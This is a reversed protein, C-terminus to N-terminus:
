FRASLTLRALLPAGPSLNSDNHASFWYEEDALNEINLQVDLQDTLNYFLAADVRTFSPLVVANSISAYQEDQHVIGLAVDLRDTVRIRNWLSASFEPVLPAQRGAPAASTTSTIEAEQFSMAGILNWGSALEGQLALELGEARQSGTLVVIDPIPGPARTNTRDLQYLTASLLLRNNPLWRVGVEVNEFEEPELTATSITLSNFQEGSQPLFARSWGGYVSVSDLPEWILGARPSVFTDDRSFDPAGPRRDNFALDFRDWRLGLVAKFRDTFEVQDQVLVAFLNLGNTNDLAPAVSFDPVFNRGRDALSFFESATNVRRNDSEQRGSEMGFLVTHELGALSTEWILDAQGLLNQRETANNYSSIRVTDTATNVAGGPYVNEYFKDYDGYSLAGRFSLGKGFDHTLVGRLTAVDIESNSLNPNGFFTDVDGPWPRGNQSPVGRDVTREDSFVEGFLDIRTNPSAQIRLTPALGRRSIGVHDRYSDSEEVVANVRGAVDRTLEGGFDGALRAYGFMGAGLDFASISEGNATKSVRNLAGGGNGRGFVLSSPGKIVDVRDVNYLDRLYQLDDRIGDVFFDSTTINGRFIPADRHGEGQGMTVGPVYRVLEGLGNMAQDEIVDRTIVFISQPIDELATSTRTVSSSEDDRYSSRTGYVYMVEAAANQDADSQQGTPEAAQRAISHSSIVSAAFLAALSSSRHFQKM